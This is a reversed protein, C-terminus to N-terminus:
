VADGVKLHLENIERVGDNHQIKWMWQKGVVYIEPTDPPAQFAEDYVLVGWGFMFLFLLLPVVSWFIELKHSGLIRPTREGEGRRRYQACLVALLFFVLLTGAGTVASIFYFLYDVQAAHECAREPLIPITAVLMPRDRLM